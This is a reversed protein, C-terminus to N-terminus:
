VYKFTICKFLFHFAKWHFARECGRESSDSLSVSVLSEKYVYDM